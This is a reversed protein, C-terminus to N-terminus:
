VGLSHQGEACVGVRDIRVEEHGPVVFLRRAERRGVVAVGVSRDVAHLHDPAEDFRVDRAPFLHADFLEDRGHVLGGRLVDADDHQPRDELLDEPCRRIRPQLVRDRLEFAPIGAAPVPPVQGVFADRGRPGVLM